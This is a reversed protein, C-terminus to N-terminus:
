LLRCVLYQRSQLESTHEESRELPRTWVQKGKLDFAWLGLNAVYVYVNKGDTVPSESTFSNKRHRGGPPRGSHFEKRWEVAGTKLDLCYLFYHLVVEEPM